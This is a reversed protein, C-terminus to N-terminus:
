DAPNKVMWKYYNLCTLIIALDDSQTVALGTLSQFQDIRYRVTNHHVGLLRAAERYNFGSDVYASLTGILIDRTNSDMEMVAYFYDNYFGALDDSIGPKILLSLIGYDQIHMVDNAQIFARSAALQLIDRGKQRIGAPSDSFNGIVIAESSGPYADSLRNFIYRGLKRNQSIIEQKFGSKVPLLFYLRCSGGANSSHEAASGAAGSSHTYSGHPGHAYSGGIGSLIGHKKFFETFLESIISNSLQPVSNKDKTDIICLMPSYAAGSTYSSASIISEAIEGNQEFLQNLFANNERLRDAAGSSSALRVYAKFHAADNGTTFSQVLPEIIDNWSLYKPVSLIPLSNSDAYDIVDQPLESIYRNLKIAVATIGRRRLQEFISLISECEKFVYGNTLVFEGEATYDVSDPAELVGVHTVAAETGSAGALLQMQNFPYVNELLFSLSFQM